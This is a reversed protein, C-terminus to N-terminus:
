KRGSDDNPDPTTIGGLGQALQAVGRQLSSVIQIVNM